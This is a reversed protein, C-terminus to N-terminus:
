AKFLEQKTVIATGLKGVVIGAAENAINVAERLSKGEALTLAITAIVTDGAGSVDFVERAKSPIHMRGSPDYLTMGEEGRTILISDFNYDLRCKEALCTLEDENTWPGFVNKFETINPTILQAGSYRRFDASKPDVLVKKGKSRAFAILTECNVLAGKAYDSLVIVGHTDVLNRFISDRFVVWNDTPPEEFDLRIMQQSKSMVRLKITTTVEKNIFLKTEIGASTLIETLRVGAEDKGVVGLISCKGDIASINRAVNAAGGPREEIHTIRVIPVPAEPSIREVAGFFYRDLMVDGVVLIKPDPATQSNTLFPQSNPM